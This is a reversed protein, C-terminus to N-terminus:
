QDTWFWFAIGQAKLYKIQKPTAPEEESYADKRCLAYQKPNWDKLVQDMQRMLGSFSKHRNWEQYNAKTPRKLRESWGGVDIVQFAWERDEGEVKAIRWIKPTDTENIPDCQIWLSANEANPDIVWRLDTLAHLKENYVTKSWVDRRVAYLEINDLDSWDRPPMEVTEEDEYVIIDIIPNVTPVKEEGEEDMVHLSIAPSLELHGTDYTAFIYAKPKPSDAIAALREEKTECGAICLRGDEYVWPRLARGVEQEFLADSNTLQALILAQITPEDYGETLVKNNTITEIPGWPKFDRLYQDRLQKDTKSYVQGTGRGIGLKNLTSFVIESTAVNQNFILTQLGVAYKEKIKCVAAAREEASLDKWNGLSLHLDWLVPEVLWGNGIGYDLGYDIEHEPRWNDVFAELTAGDSRNPTATLYLVLPHDGDGHFGVDKSGVGFQNLVRDWSGGATVHHGEDMLFTRPIKAYKKMRNSELRGVSDVSVFLMDEVGSAHYEGM